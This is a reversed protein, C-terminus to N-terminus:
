DPSTKWRLWNAGEAHPYEDLKEIVDADPGYRQSM